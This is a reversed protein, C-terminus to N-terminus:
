DRERLKETLFESFLIFSFHNSIMNEENLNQRSGTNSRGSNWSLESLNLTRIKPRDQTDTRNTELQTNSFKVHSKPPTLVLKRM